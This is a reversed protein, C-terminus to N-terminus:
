WRTMHDQVRRIQRLLEDPACPKRLFADCGAAVAAEYDSHLVCATLVIIPTRKTRDDM